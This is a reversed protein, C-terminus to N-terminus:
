VNIGFYPLQARRVGEAKLRFLKLRVVHTTVRNTVYFVPRNLTEWTVKFEPSSIADKTKPESQM